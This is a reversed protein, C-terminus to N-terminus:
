LKLVTKAIINRQVENSGGFITWARANLYNAAAIQAGESLVPTPANDGYLPREYTLQLGAYGYIRMALRSIEQRLNSTVLKVLSTQPGAPRGQSIDGLIRLETIELAQAEFEARSLAGAFAADDILPSGNGGPAASAQTRIEALEALLVPAHCSGGRENELLYKAITWGQGEEGVLDTAPVVVNDLFVANIEHDGAINIIPRVEIGPQRMDILLFSIGAQPKGEFNTRALCFMHDAFHAHTTWLKSGNVIWNEGDRVATTKLSALDSGASPESFGQCWYDEGSLIRPLYHAKQADTGFHHLVPGLLKLSLVPLEPAHALACEKEFIYRKVPEWGTGGHSEPWAYGFWGKENLKAQWERGVDPEAFVTPTLRASRRLRDDLHGGLFVRVEDQFASEEATFHMDM